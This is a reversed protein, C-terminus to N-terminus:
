FLKSVIELAAISVLRPDVAGNPVPRRNKEIDYLLRDSVELVGQNM